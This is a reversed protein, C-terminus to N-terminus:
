FAQSAIRALDQYSPQNSNRGLIGQGYNGGTGLDNIHRLSTGDNYLTPAAIHPSMAENVASGVAFLAGIGTLRRIIRPNPAYKRPDRIRTGKPTRAEKIADDLSVGKNMLKQAFIRDFEKTETVMNGPINRFNPLWADLPDQVLGRGRLMDVPSGTLLTRAGLEIGKAGTVAAGGITRAINLGMGLAGRGGGFANSLGKGLIPGAARAAMFGGVGLGLGLIGGVAGISAGGLGAATAGLGIAGATAGGIMGLTAVGATAGFRIGFKRLSVAMDGKGAFPVKNLHYNGLARGALGGFLGGLVAGGMMPGVSDNYSIDNNMLYHGAYVTGAILAAKGLNKMGPMTFEDVITDSITEFKLQHMGAPNSGMKGNHLEKIQDLFKKM